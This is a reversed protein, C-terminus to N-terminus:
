RQDYHRDDSPHYGDTSRRQDDEYRRDPYRDDDQYHRGNPGGSQQDSHAGGSYERDSHARDPYEGGSHAGGSYERGSYARDSYNHDATDSRYVRDGGEDYSRHRRYEREERHRGEQHGGSVGASGNVGASGYVGASGNVSATGYVRAPYSRQRYEDDYGREDQYPRAPYNQRPLRGTASAAAPVFGDVPGFGGGPSFGDAAPAFGTPVPLSGAPAPVSGGVPVSGAAVPIFGTAVPVSGAAVPVSGTAVPVSGTAVPVSGTAVPVSGTAVPVFGGVPVPGAPAPVSGAVPEAAPKGGGGPSEWPFLRPKRRAAIDEVWGFLLIAFGVLVWAVTYQFWVSEAIGHQDLFPILNFRDDIYPALDICLNHWLYITVARANVLAVFKGLFPTRALWSVDPSVRLLAMVFAMSWFAQAVPLGDLDHAAGPDSNPFKLAVAIGAVALFVTVGTYVPTSFKKLYGERHAMGLIWCGAYTGVTAILDLSLAGFQTFSNDPQQYVRTLAWHGPLILAMPALLTVIPWRRFAKLLLPSLAVFWLYTRLYWLIVAYNAGWTSGPPDLVPVVYLLLQWYHLPNDQDHTWGHALMLPVMIAGYLWFAPLLRRFRNRIVVTPGSRDLSRVMLGGALAFMVGMSPFVWTLWSGGFTHYTVVRIIALTRLTDLWLDRNRAPARTETVTGM